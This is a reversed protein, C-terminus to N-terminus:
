LGVAPKLASAREESLRRSREAIRAGPMDAAASRTRIRGAPSAASREAYSLGGPAGIYFGIDAVGTCDSPGEPDAGNGGVRIGRGVKESKVKDTAVQNATHYACKRNLLGIRGFLDLRAEIIGVGEGLLDSYRVLFCITSELSRAAPQVATGNLGPRPRLAYLFQAM